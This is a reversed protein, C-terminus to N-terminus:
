ATMEIVIKGHVSRGAISELALDTRKLPFTASVCPRLREKQFLAFLEEMNRANTDPEARCFAGWYVGVAACGKLLLLNLPIRPIDGAAFGVVLYRGRWAMGRLAPDTFRGGVPDYVVDVGRGDTLEKIRQRMDDREYDITEDAGHDICLALKAETSAAAIVRAGFAKGIEVAALGVGGSAGLVLLTEGSRLAARDKLAHYSTGYTLTFAAATVFDMESPIPHVRWAEALVEEAFAGWTMAALVRDGVSLGSVGSGTKVVTGAVEGGPTFPLAPKAQYTGQIILTDPFNVGAAEVRILVEGPGPEPSPLEQLELLEPGGLRTCVIARL